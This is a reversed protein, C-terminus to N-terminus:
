TASPPPRDSRFCFASSSWIGKFAPSSSGPLYPFVLVAAFAYIFFRVIKFTPVAWDQYFGSVKITGRELADFFLKAFKVVYRTLVVIIVIYLLNPVYAVVGHVTWLAASRLYGFLQQALGRTWPFFSLTLNVYLYLVVASLLLRALRAAAVLIEAVGGAALLLRAKKGLRAASVRRLLLYVRHFGFSFGWFLLVLVTTATVSYLGGFALGKISRDHFDRQLANHAILADDAALQRRTRGTPQADADTVSLILRDGAVVDTRDDREVARVTKAASPPGAAIDGLRRAIEEARRAPTLKGLGASLHFLEEGRFVVAFSPVGGASEETPTETPMPTPTETPAPAPAAWCPRGVTSLAVLVLAISTLRLMTPLLLM